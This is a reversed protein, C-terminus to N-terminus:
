AIKEKDKRVTVEITEADIDALLAAMISSVKAKPVIPDDGDIVDFHRTYTENLVRLDTRSTWSVSIRM